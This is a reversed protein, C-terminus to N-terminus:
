TSTSVFPVIEGELSSSERTSWHFTDGFSLRKNASARQLTKQNANELALDFLPNDQLFNFQEQPNALFSAGEVGRQAVGALPDFFSQAKIAAAEQGQIAEQGASAQIQAADKAADRAGRGTFSDVTDRIFGM